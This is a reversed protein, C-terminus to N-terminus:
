EGAALAARLEDYNKFGTGPEVVDRWMGDLREVMAASLVAKHGGVKGTKIKSSSADAPIGCPANRAKVILNDDFQGEHAKMFEFSAQRTAIEIAAEDDGFGIFDAVKKVSGPLDTKMDEFAFMCVADENRRPWWSMLHSWYDGVLAGRNIVFEIFEDIGVADRELFWGNFFNYFSVMSDAPDRIVSIYRCGAPVQDGAMHSKFARPNAKHEAELSWGVDHAIEIWPTVETIEAFDMDGRTRLGHVIQQMWTTGAKAFTAIIVDSPRPRFAMANGIGEETIFLAMREKLEEISQARRLTM